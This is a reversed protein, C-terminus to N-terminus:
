TQGPVLAAVVQFPSQVPSDAFRELLHGAVFCCDADSSKMLSSEVSLFSLAGQTSNLEDRTPICSKPLVLVVVEQGTSMGSPPM